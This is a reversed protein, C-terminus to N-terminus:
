FTMPLVFGTFKSKWQSKYRKVWRNVHTKGTGLQKAAAECSMHKDIVLKVTELRQGYSYKSM